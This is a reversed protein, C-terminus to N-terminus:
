EVSFTPNDIVRCISPEVVPRVVLSSAWSLWLSVWFRRRGVRARVLRARPDRPVVGVVRRSESVVLLEM